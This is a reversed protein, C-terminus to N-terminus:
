HSTDPILGLRCAQRQLDAPLTRADLILGDIQVLWATPHDNILEQRCYGPDMPSRLGVLQCIQKAKQQMTPLSVGLAEGLAAAPLHPTQTADFLFNNAAVTYVVGAAWIRPQGRLLPSPRKRLLKGVLRACLVAYEEDLHEFCVQSIIDLIEGVRPRLRPRDHEIASM